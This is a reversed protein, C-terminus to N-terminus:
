DGSSYLVDLDQRMSSHLCAAFTMGTRRNVQTQTAFPLSLEVPDEVTITKRQPNALESLCSYVTTTKGGATPGTVVILGTPQAISARVLALSQAEMGIRDLGLLVNGRNLIRMVLSEGQLTPLISMRIELDLDDDHIQCRGDQAVRREGLNMDGMQKFRLTIAEILSPPVKRIEHLVGDIRYRLWLYTETESRVPEIHIDSARMAVAQAVIRDALLAIRDEHSATELTVSTIELRVGEDGTGFFELEANLM